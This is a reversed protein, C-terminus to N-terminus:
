LEANSGLARVLEAEEMGAFLDLRALHWITSVAAM